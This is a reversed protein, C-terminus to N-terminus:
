ADTTADEVEALVALCPIPPDLLKHNFEVSKIKFVSGGAEVLKGIQLDITAIPQYVSVDLRYLGAGKGSLIRDPRTDLTLM